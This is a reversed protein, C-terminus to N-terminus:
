KNTTPHSPHSQHNANRPPKISRPTSMRSGVSALLARSVRRRRFTRSHLKTSVQAAKAVTRAESGFGRLWGFCPWISGARHNTPNTSHLTDPDLTLRDSRKPKCPDLVISRSSPFIIRSGISGGNKLSLQGAPEARGPRSCCFARGETSALHRSPARRREISAWADWCLMNSHRRCATHM